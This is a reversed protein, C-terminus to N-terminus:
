GLVVLGRDEYASRAPVKAENLLSRAVTVSKLPSLPVAAAKLNWVFGDRGVATESAVEGATRLQDPQDGAFLPRRVTDEIVATVFGSCAARYASSTLPKVIDPDLGEIAFLERVEQLVAVESASGADMGIAPPMWRRVLEVLRPALWRTGQRHDICEVYSASFTGAALGVSCWDDHVSYALVVDGPELHPARPQAVAAWRDAPLKAPPMDNKPPLVPIGLREVGFEERGLLLFENDYVWREGIRINMGPNSIFWNARNAPDCGPEASWEALMRRGVSGSKMLELLLDRVKHLEISEAVPASSAYIMIPADDNMSQASMSSLLAQMHLATLFLAEDLVVVQPSKGRGIKKSRTVFRIQRWGGDPHREDTRVIREKGNSEFVRTIVDLDPNAEIVAVLRAMHDASTEARHATHLIVPVGVVYFLYLEVVELVINKGNQRPILLVVLECLLRRNVDESLIGDVCWKQFDDLEYGLGEAFEIADPGSSGVRGEPLCWLRPRQSGIQM